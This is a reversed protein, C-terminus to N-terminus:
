AHAGEIGGLLMNLCQLSSSSFITVLCTNFPFLVSGSRCLEQQGRHLLQLGCFQNASYKEPFLLKCILM